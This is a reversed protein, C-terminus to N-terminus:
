KFFFRFRVDGGLTGLDDQGGFLSVNKNIVYELKIEQEESTSMSSSYTVFLDSGLMKSVTVRPTITGTRRSVYPDITFRSIGTLDRLREEVVNQFQGTLVSSAEAAGIGGELGRLREGFEGVTLLAIIEEDELEPDSILTLDLQQLRGELTLWINYGKVATEAIIDVYPNKHETDSFDATAHVINFESNRFYVKGETAEVRGLLLPEGITGRLITDISLRARAVNNDISVNDKGYLRVNLQIDDLLGKKVVTAEARKAKLLWSRWEIRDRYEARNISVEGTILKSDPKGRYIINGGLNAKFGETMMLNVDKLLMDLNVNRANLGDLKMVGSMEIDGGGLKASLREIVVVDDEFYSYGNISALRQPTGTLGLAGGTVEIGGNINPREWDGQIALVFSAMGRLLSIRDSFAKLPALSSTGDIMVDYFDNYKFSGQLNVATTGSRLKFKPVFVKGDDISIVIDDENSFSQGFMALTIQALTAEADIRDKTGSLIANGTINFMMDEPVEELFATALFDYRGKTIEMEANWPMDEELLLKGKVAMKDKFVRADYTFEKGRLNAKLKGGGAERGIFIGESLDARLTINPQEFTGKGEAEFSMRYSLPLSRQLVSEPYFKESNARFDFVGDNTVSGEVSLESEGSIMKASTLRFTDFDYSFGLTASSVDFGYVSGEAIESEGSYVPISGEIRVKGNAMGDAPVALKHLRLIGGLDAGNLVVGLDFDPNQLDLLKEAKPFAVTGEVRYTSDGHVGEADMVTFLNKRYSAEGKVKGIPYEELFVDNMEIRGKILPDGTSGVASGKFTLSGSLRDFYPTTFEKIDDALLTGSIDMTKNNLDVIGGFSMRSAATEAKMGSMTVVKDAMSYKGSVKKFRGIPDDRPEIAEYEAWGEPKFRMGSTFFKGKVKGYPLNLWAMGIREFAPPSDVYEFDVDVTYPKASPMTLLVDFDAKGGFVIGKGETFRLLMDEYIAKCKADDVEVTYLNGKRLRADATGKIDNLTGSVNGDFSVLGTLRHSTRAKVMELLTQLYFDGRVNFDLYPNGLGEDMRLTGRARVSGYGSEKLSRIRKVTDVDIDFDLRLLATKDFSYHGTGSLKSGEIDASIRKFEISDKGVVFNGSMGGKIEPWKKMAAGIEGVSFIIEPRDRLIVETDLGNAEVLGLGEDYYSVEGERVVITKVALSVASEKEKGPKKGAAKLAGAFEEVRAKDLRAQPKRIVISDISVQKKFLKSLGVYAKVSEVTFLKEGKENLIKIDKAEVYLPLINVLMKRATVQRGLASQAEPLILAKLFNSVYPGRLFLVFGAVVLAVISLIIKKKRTLAMDM